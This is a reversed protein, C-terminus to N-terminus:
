FYLKNIFSFYEHFFALNNSVDLCKEYYISMNLSSELICLTNMNITPICNQCMQKVGGEREREKKGGKEKKGNLLVADRYHTKLTCKTRNVIKLPFIAFKSFIIINM